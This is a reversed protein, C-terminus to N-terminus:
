MNYLRSAHGGKIWWSWFFTYSMNPLYMCFRLIGLAHVPLFCEISTVLLVSVWADRWYIPLLLFISM